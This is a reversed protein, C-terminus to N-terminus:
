KIFSGPLESTCRGPSELESTGVFGRPVEKFQVEQNPLDPSLRPNWRELLSRSVGTNGNRSQTRLLLSSERLYSEMRM